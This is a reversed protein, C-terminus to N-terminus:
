HNITKVWYAQLVRNCRNKGDNSTKIQRKNLKVWFIMRVMLHKSIKNNREIM